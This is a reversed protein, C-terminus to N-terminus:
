LVVRVERAWPLLTMLLRVRFKAVVKSSSVVVHTRVGGVRRWEAAFDDGGFVFRMMGSGTPSGLPRLTVSFHESLDLCGCGIEMRVECRCGWSGARWGGHLINGSQECPKAKLKLGQSTTVEEGERGREGGRWAGVRTLLIVASAGSRVGECGGGVSSVEAPYEGGLDESEGVEGMPEFQTAGEKSDGGSPGSSAPQAASEM